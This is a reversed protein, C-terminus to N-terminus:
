DKVGTLTVSRLATGQQVISHFRELRSWTNSKVETSRSDALWDLDSSVHLIWQHADM